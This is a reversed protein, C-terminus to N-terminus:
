GTLNASRTASACGLIRADPSYADVIASEFSQTIERYHLPRGASWLGMGTLDDGGALVSAIFADTPKDDLDTPM